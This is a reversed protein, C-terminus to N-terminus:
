DFIDSIDEPLSALDDEDKLHHRSCAARPGSLGRRAFARDSEVPADSVDENRFFTKFFAKRTRQAGDHDTGQQLSQVVSYAEDVIASPNTYAHTNPLGICGPAMRYLDRRIQMNRLYEQEDMMTFRPLRHQAQDIQQLQPLHQPQHGNQQMGMYNNLLHCYDAVNKGNPPVSACHSFTSSMNNNFNMTSMMKPNEHQHYMFPLSEASCPPPTSSTAYNPVSESSSLSTGIKDDTGIQQKRRALKAKTSSRYKTYLADRFICGVKERAFADDVEWWTDGEKKVFAPEDPCGGKISDMITSVIETKEVKNNAKGYADLHEEILARLKQNGPNSTCVKGRGCIVANEDPTYKIPMRTKKSNNKKSVPIRSPSTHCFSSASPILRSAISDDAPLRIGYGQSPPIAIGFNAMMTKSKFSLVVFYNLFQASQRTKIDMTDNMFFCLNLYHAPYKEVLPLFAKNKASKERLLQKHSVHLVKITL